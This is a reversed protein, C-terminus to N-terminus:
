RTRWWNELNSEPNQDCEGLSKEDADSTFISFRNERASTRANELQLTNTCHGKKVHKPECFEECSPKLSVACLYPVREVATWPDVELGYTKGHWNPTIGLITARIVHIQVNEKSEGKSEIRRKRDGLRRTRRKGKRDVLCEVNSVPERSGVKVKARSLSFITKMVM